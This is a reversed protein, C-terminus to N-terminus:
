IAGDARLRAIREPDYGLGALVEDTHEGLGPGLWETGGPTDVLRPVVGPIRIPTGDALAAEEIMGRAVFQADRFMDEVSFVPSAPVEAAEMAALVVDGDRAAV